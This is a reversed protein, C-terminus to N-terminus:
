KKLCRKLIGAKKKFHWLRNVAVRATLPNEDDFLWDVLGLRNKKFKNSFPLIVNPVGFQVEDTPNDYTGRNLVYTKRKFNKEEKMVMLKVEKISDPMKVFSLMEKIEAPTITINPEPIENYDIQGKEKIQNFFAYFGYFDKQSIPDYKHDHCRACEMTLGMLSKSTTNTRDM